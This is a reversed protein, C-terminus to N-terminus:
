KLLTKAGWTAKVCVTGLRCGRTSRHKKKKKTQPTEIEKQRQGQTRDAQAKKPYQQNLTM